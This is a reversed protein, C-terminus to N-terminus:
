DECDLFEGDQSDLLGARETADVLRACHSPLTTDASGDPQAPVTSSSGRDCVLYRNRAAEQVAIAKDTSRDLKAASIGTSEKDCRYDRSPVAAGRGRIWPHALASAASLRESPKGKLLCDIFQRATASVEAWCPSQFEYLGRIVARAVAQDTEGSFPLRGSLVVYTIVGLSWIDVACDYPKNQLMEPAAYAMTGLPEDMNHRRIASLGFDTIKVSAIQAVASADCGTGPSDVVLINEPKLDRHTIGVEHLYQTGYLLCGLVDCSSPETLRQEPLRLLRHLLDGGKVHEMVLYLREPEDFLGVLRAVNPHDVLKLIAVETQLFKRAEDSVDAKSIVKVARLKGPSDRAHAEVVKAFKGRGLEKSSLEYIDHISPSQSAASMLAALWAAQDEASTCLLVRKQADGKLHLAIGHRGRPVEEVENRVVAGELCLVGKPVRDAVKVFYYLYKDDLVFYRSKQIKAKRGVKWLVGEKIPTEPLSASSAMSAGSIQRAFGSSKLLTRFLGDRSSNSCVSRAPASPSALPSSAHSVAPTCSGQDPWPGCRSPLSGSSPSALQGPADSSFSTSGSNGTGLECLPAPRANARKGLPANGTSRLSQGCQHCFRFAKLEWGCGNCKYEGAPGEVLMGGCQMCHSMTAATGCTPCQRGRGAMNKDSDLTDVGSSVSSMTAFSETARNSLLGFSNLKRSLTDAWGSREGRSLETRGPQEAVNAVGSPSRKYDVRSRRLRSQGGNEYASWISMRPVCGDTIQSTRTNLENEPLAEDYFVNIIEMIAPTQTVVDAFEDFTLYREAPDKNVFVGDIIQEIRKRAFRDTVIGAMGQSSTCSTDAAVLTDLIKFAAPIHSLMTRLEQCTVVGDGDLDYMDFLFRKKEEMTGRYILAMGTLFEQFDVGGSADRDFGTFLREGMIGPLPFYEMFTAKDIKGPSVSAETLNKFISRVLNVKGRNFRALAKRYDERLDCQQTAM